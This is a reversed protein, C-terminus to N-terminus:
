EYAALLRFQWFHYRVHQYHFRELEAFSLEGMFPHYAKFDPEREYHHYFREIGVLFQEKAEELTDYKLTPLDAKTKDSSRHKFVAGNAIFRKFGQQREALAPDPEGYRKVSSKIISTLHEIMHQPTMLGFQPETTSKLDQLLTPVVETLFAKKKSM